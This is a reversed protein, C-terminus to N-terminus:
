RRAGSAALEAEGGRSAKTRLRELEDLEEDTLKSLDLEDEARVRLPRNPDGSVEVSTKENWRKRWRIRLFKLAIEPDREAGSFAAKTITLEARGEAELLRQRFKGLESEPEDRGKRLWDRLTSQSVGAVMAAVTRYAGNLVGAIIRDAVEDNFASPRGAGKPNKATKKAM